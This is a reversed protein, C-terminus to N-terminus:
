SYRIQDSVYSGTSRSTCRRAFLCDDIVGHLRQWVVVRGAVGHALRLDKVAREAHTLQEERIQRPPLRQTVPEARM